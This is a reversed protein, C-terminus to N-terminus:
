ELIGTVRDKKPPLTEMIFGCNSNTTEIIHSLEGTKKFEDITRNLMELTQRWEPRKKSVAYYLHNYQIEPKVTEINSLIKRKEVAPWDSNIVSYYIVSPDGIILDVRKAVLMKINTLDDTIENINFFNQDMLSDFEPTNQYGRVVGIAAGKLNLLEGNYNDKERKRKIFAISGGPIKESIALHNLRKTDKYIDSPADPEIFYEPYLIDANGSEAIAVTRAWPYFTSVIEYDQSALIAITLQQVWGQRCITAGIYPEWDLTTIKIKKKAGQNFIYTYDNIKEGSISYLKGNYHFDVSLPSEAYAMGDSLILLSTIICIGFLIIAHKKKM